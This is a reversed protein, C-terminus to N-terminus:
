VREHSLYGLWRVLHQQILQLAGREAVEQLRHIRRVTEDGVGRPSSEGALM